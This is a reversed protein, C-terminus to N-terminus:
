REFMICDREIRQVLITDSMNKWPVWHFEDTVDGTIDYVRGNIQTGFHNIVQDYMIEAHDDAFRKALIDAFWYCCGCTFAEIVQDYKGSGTFRSIFSNVKDM